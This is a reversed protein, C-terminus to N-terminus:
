EPGDIVKFTAGDANKLLEGRFYVNKGDTAYEKGLYRFNEVNASTIIIDSYYCVGCDTYDICLQRLPYYVHNKDKAYSTGAFVKFTQVDIGKLPKVNCAIEGGFIADGIRTYGDVREKDNLSTWQQKKQILEETKDIIGEPTYYENKCSTICLFFILVIFLQKM